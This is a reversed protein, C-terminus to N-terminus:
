LVPHIRLFQTEGPPVSVPFLIFGEKVTAEVEKTTNLFEVKCRSPQDVRFRLGTTIQDDSYNFLFVISSSGERLCATKLRPDDSEMQKLNYRTCLWDVLRELPHSGVECAQLWIHTACQIIEGKGHVTRLVAPWGNEFHAKVQVQTSTIDIEKMEFFSRLEGLPPSDGTFLLAGTAPAVDSVSYNLIDQIKSGPIRPYLRGNEDIEAFKGDCIMTGGQQVYDLLASALRDDMIILNSAFLIQYQDPRSLLIDEVCLVDLPVNLEWFCRYIGQLSKTYLSDHTLESNEMLAKFLIQTRRDFLVAARAPQPKIQEWDVGSADMLSRIREVARLRKTPKLQANVLGRGFVQVGSIFPNWKWYALGKAGRAVAEWTWIAIEGATVSSTPLLLNTNHTQLEAVWFPKGQATARFGDLVMWRRFPEEVEGYYKPYISIGPEDVAGSLEWDDHPRLFEGEGAIMSGVNDALIPHHPDIERLWAAWERLIEGINARKFREYDMFPILSAWDWRSPRVQEWRDYCREWATNLQHLDGYQRQLWQQFKKLTYPDFSTFQTENWIDYGYLASYDRYASAIAQLYAKVRKRVQPHNFNIAYYGDSHESPHSNEDMVLFEPKMWFDPAYELSPIQGALEVIVQLHNQEACGLIFKGTETPFSQRDHPEWWYVPPWIVIHSFGSAHISDLHARIDEKSYSREVKYVVGLPYHTRARMATM